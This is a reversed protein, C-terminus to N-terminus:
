LTQEQAIERITSHTITNSYIIKNKTVITKTTKIQNSTFKLTQSIEMFNKNKTSSYTNLFDNCKKSLIDCLFADSTDSYKRDKM